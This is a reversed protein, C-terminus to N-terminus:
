RPRSAIWRRAIRGYPIADLLMAIVAIPVALVVGFWALVYAIGLALEGGGAPRTGSLIGVADRAGMAHLVAFVAVVVTVAAIVLRRM